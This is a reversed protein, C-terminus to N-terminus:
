ATSQLLFRVAVNFQHPKQAAECRVERALVKPLVMASKRRSLRSAMWFTQREKVRKKVPITIKKTPFEDGCRCKGCTCTDVAALEFCDVTSAPVDRFTFEVGEDLLDVLLDFIVEIIEIVVIRKFCLDM